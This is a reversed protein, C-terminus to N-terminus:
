YWDAIALIHIVPLHIFVSILWNSWISQSQLLDLWTPPAQWDAAQLDVCLGEEWDAEGSCLLVLVFGQYVNEKLAM